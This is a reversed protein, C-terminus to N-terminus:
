DNTVDPFLKHYHSSGLAFLRSHSTWALVNNSSGWDRDETKLYFYDNRIAKSQCIFSIIWMVLLDILMGLICIDLMDNRLYQFTTIKPVKPM